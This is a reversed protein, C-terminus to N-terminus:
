KIDKKSSMVNKLDQIYREIKAVMSRYVLVEKENKQISTKIMDMVDAFINDMTIYKEINDANLETETVNGDILKYLVIKKDSKLIVKEEIGRDNILIGGGLDYSRGDYSRLSIDDKWVYRKLAFYIDKINELSDNIIKKLEAEASQKEAETQELHDMLNKLEGIDNM